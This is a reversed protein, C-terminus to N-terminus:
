NITSIDESRSAGHPRARISDAWKLKADVLAPIIFYPPLPLVLDPEDVGCTMQLWSMTREAYM